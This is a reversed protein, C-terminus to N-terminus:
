FERGNYKALVVTWIRTDSDNIIDSNKTVDFNPRLVAFATGLKSRCTIMLLWEGKYRGAEQKVLRVDKDHKNCAFTCNPYRTMAYHDATRFANNVLYEWRDSKTAAPIDGSLAICYNASYVLM